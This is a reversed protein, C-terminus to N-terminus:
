KGFEDGKKDFVSILNKFYSKWFPYLKSRVHKSNFGAMSYVMNKMSEKNNEDLYSDFM